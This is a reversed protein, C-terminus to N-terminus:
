LLENRLIRLTYDELEKSSETSQAMHMRLEESSFSVNVDTLASFDTVEPQTGIVFDADTIIKLAAEAVDKRLLKLCPGTRPGYIGPKTRTVVTVIGKKELMAYDTLNATHPGVEGYRILSSLFDEPRQIRSYMTYHEGFRISALLLKVDDLIDDSYMEQQLLDASFGFDKALGRNSVIQLPNIMGVRKALTLIEQGQHSLQELPLGQAGQIVRIIDKLSERQGIELKSVTLAIKEHNKGWVYENSIIPEQYSSKNLTQILRFNNQLLLSRTVDEESYGKLTLNQMLDSQLYPIKKTEDMTDIVIREINSPRMNEFTSGSIELVDSSEFMFEEVRVFDGATNYKVRVKGESAENILPLIVRNLEYSNQVGVSYAMEELKRINDIHGNGRITGLFRGVKGALSLNGLHGLGTTDSKLEKLHKQSAVSWYGVKKKSYTDM